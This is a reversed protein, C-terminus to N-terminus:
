RLKTRARLGLSRRQTMKIWDDAFGLLAGRAMGFVALTATTAAWSSSRCRSASFIIILGGMTPTGAKVHHGEPGEERIQQGFERARLFAIFKPGLFLLHAALRHGRHPGRGAPRRSADALGARAGGRALGQGAGTAPHSSSWSGLPRRRTPWVHVDGGACRRVVALARRAPSGASRSSCRSGPARRRAGSRRTSPPRTQASSSCTASCRSAGGRPTVALDDLAARMSMPNANYCDNIVVVGGDLEMREGRWASFQRRRAWEADGRSRPAAAVAALANPAQPAARLLVRARGVGAADIRAAPRGRSGLSVDGGEGFTVLAPRRATTTSCRSAPPSSRRGARACTARDARGQGRRDGRDLRAARPPGSRRQRDRRRRARRDRGARRDAGDGRM